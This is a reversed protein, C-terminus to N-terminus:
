LRSVSSSLIKPRLQSVTAVLEPMSWTQGFGLNETSRPPFGSLVPSTVNALNTPTPLRSSKFCVDMSLIEAASACGNIGDCVRHVLRVVFRYSGSSRNWLTKKFRHRAHVDCREGPQHARRHRTTRDCRGFGESDANGESRCLHREPKQRSAKLRRPDSPM